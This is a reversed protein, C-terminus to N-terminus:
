PSSKPALQAKELQLPAHVREAQLLSVAPSAPPISRRGCASSHQGALAAREKGTWPEELLTQVTCAREAPIRYGAPLVLLIHPGALLDARVPTLLKRAQAAHELLAGRGGQEGQRWVRRLSRKGDQGCPATSCRTVLRGNTGLKWCRAPATLLAPGSGCNRRAPDCSNDPLRSAYGGGARGAGCADEWGLLSGLELRLAMLLRVVPILFVM